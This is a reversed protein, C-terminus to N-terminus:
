RPLIDALQQDCGNLYAKAESFQRHTALFGANQAFCTGLVRMDVDSIFTLNCQTPIGTGHM